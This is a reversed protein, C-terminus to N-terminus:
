SISRGSRISTLMSILGLAYAVLAVVSAFIQVINAIGTNISFLMLFGTILLGFMQPLAFVFNLLLDILINGSYFVLAGVDVLPINTQSQLSDQVLESTGELDISQGLDSFSTVYDSSGLPMAHTLLSIGFAYFLQITLLIYFSRMSGAM